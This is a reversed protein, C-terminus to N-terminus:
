QLTSCPWTFYYNVECIAHCASSRLKCVLFGKNCIIYERNLLTEKLFEHSFYCHSVRDKLAPALLYYCIVIVNVHNVMLAMEKYRSYTLQIAPAVLWRLFGDDHKCQLM